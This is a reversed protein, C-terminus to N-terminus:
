RIMLKNHWLFALMGGVCIATCFSVTRGTARRETPSVESPHSPWVVRRFSGVMGAWIEGHRFLVWLAMVAAAGFSYVVVYQVCYQVNTLAGIATMLKVDGGGMLPKGSLAGIAWIFFFGIFMFLASIFGVKFPGLGAAFGNTFDGELLRLMLAIAIAPLTVANYVKGEKLDTYMCGILLAFYLLIRLILWVTFEIQMGEAVMNVAEAASSPMGPPVQIISDTPM